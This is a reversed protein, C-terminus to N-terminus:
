YMKVVRWAGNIKSVRVVVRETGNSMEYEATTAADDDTLSQVSWGKKDRHNFGQAIFPDVSREIMVRAKSDVNRKELAAAGAFFATYRDNDWERSSEAFASGKWALRVLQYSHECTSCEDIINSSFVPVRAVLENGEEFRVQSRAGPIAGAGLPGPLAQRTVDRLQQGDVKLVLMRATAARQGDGSKGTGLAAIYQDSESRLIRLEDPKGQDRDGEHFRRMLNKPLIKLLDDHSLDTISLSEGLNSASPEALPASPAEINAAPQLRPTERAASATVPQKLRYFIIWAGAGIITIALLIFLATRFRNPSSHTPSVYEIPPGDAFSLIGPRQGARTASLSIGDFFCFNMDDDFAEGCKPCIKM